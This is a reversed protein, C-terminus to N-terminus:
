KKEKWGERKLIEKKSTGRLGNYQGVTGDSRVVRHCPIKKNQNQKLITGVVRFANPSGSLKAVEKYTLTTGKPINLVVELVKEKFM